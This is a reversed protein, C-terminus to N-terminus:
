TRPPSEASVLFSRATSLFAEPESLPAMHGGPLQLLSRQPLRAALIKCVAHEEPPSDQGITILTTALVADHAQAPTRDLGCERVERFVKRGVALFAQQQRPPLSAWTGEPNWYDIFRAMWSRNGGDELDLFGSNIFTSFRQQLHMPGDSFLVGWLVPEHTLLRRIRQPRQAAVAFAIAGGYSHGVLDVPGELRDVLTLIHAVDPDWAPGDSWAPGAQYGCFDPTLCTGPLSAALRRWQRGSLGSSHLLITTM